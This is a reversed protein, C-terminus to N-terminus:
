FYLPNKSVLSSIRRRLTFYSYSPDMEKSRSSIFRRKFLTCSFHRHDVRETGSAETHLAFAHAQKLRLLFTKFDNKQTHEFLINLFTNCPINSINKQLNIIDTGLSDFSFDKIHNKTFKIRGVTDSLNYIGVENLVKQITRDDAESYQEMELFLHKPAGYITFTASNIQVENYARIVKDTVLNVGRLGITVLEPKIVPVLFLTKVEKHKILFNLLTEKFVQILEIEAERNAAILNNIKQRLVKNYEDFM